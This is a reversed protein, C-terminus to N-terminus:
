VPLPPMRSLSRVMEGSENLPRGRYEVWAHAAFGYPQVGLCLEAAIGRKRLVHQLTLSQELCRARGPFYAGAVAVRRAIEDLVVSSIEASSAFQTESKVGLARSTRVTWALGRLRLSLRIWLLTFACGVTNPFRGDATVRTIEPESITTM